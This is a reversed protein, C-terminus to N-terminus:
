FELDVIVPRHDSPFKQNYTKTTDIIFQKVKWKTMKDLLVHDVRCDPFVKGKRLYCLSRHDKSKGNVHFKEKLDFANILVDSLLNKYEPVDPTINTDAAFIFPYPSDKLLSKIRKPVLHSAGLLNEVRNDFHSSMFYFKKGSFIHELLVWHVQRPLAFKWGLNFQDPNKGLWFQGQTLKKYRTKNYAIAPDAYSMLLSDTAIFDYNKLDKLIMKVHTTSRLEQLAILDPSHMKIISNLAKSRNSYDTFESGKCFDCMTNFNLVRLNVAFTSAPLLLLLLLIFRM